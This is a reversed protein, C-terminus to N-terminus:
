MHASRYTPLAHIHGQLVSRRERHASVGVVRKLEWLPWGDSLLCVPFITCNFKFNSSRAHMRAPLKGAMKHNM